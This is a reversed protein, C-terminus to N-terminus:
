NTRYPDYHNSLLDIADMIAQAQERNNASFSAPLWTLRNRVVFDGQELYLFTTQKKNIALHMNSIEPYDIEANM